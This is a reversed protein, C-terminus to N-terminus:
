ARPGEPSTTAGSALRWRMAVARSPCNAVRRAQRSARPASRSGQATCRAASTLVRTAGRASAPRSARTAM